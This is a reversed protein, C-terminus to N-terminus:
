IMDDPNAIADGLRLESAGYVAKKFLLSLSSLDYFATNFYRTKLKSLFILISKATVSM